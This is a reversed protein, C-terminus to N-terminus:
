DFKLPLNAILFNPDYLSYNYHTNISPNYITEIVISSSQLAVFSSSLKAIQAAIKTQDGVMM